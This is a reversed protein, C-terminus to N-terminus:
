PRNGHIVQIQIHNIGMNNTTEIKIHLHLRGWAGRKENEYFYSSCM